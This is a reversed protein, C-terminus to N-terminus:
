VRRKKPPLVTHEEPLLIPSPIVLQREQHDAGKLSNLAVAARMIESDTDELFNHNKFEYATLQGVCDKHEICLGMIKVLSDDDDRGVLAIETRKTKIFADLASLAEPQLAKRLDDVRTFGVVNRRDLRYCIREFMGQPTGDDLCPIYHLLVIGHFNVIPIREMGDYKPDIATHRLAEVKADLDKKDRLTACAWRLYIYPMWECGEDNEYEVLVHGSQVDVGIFDKITYLGDDKDSPQVPIRVEEARGRQKLKKAASVTPEQRAGKINRRPNQNLGSQLELLFAREQDSSRKRSKKQGAPESKDNLGDDTVLVISPHVLASLEALTPPEVATPKETTTSVCVSDDSEVAAPPISPLSPEITVPPNVPDEFEAVPTPSPELAVPPDVLENLEVASLQEMATTPHVLHSLAMASPPPHILDTIAAPPAVVSNCLADMALSANPANEISFSMDDANHFDAADDTNLIMSIDTMASTRSGFVLDDTQTTKDSLAICVFMAQQETSIMTACSSM